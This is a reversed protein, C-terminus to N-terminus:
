ESVTADADPNYSKYEILAPQNQYKGLALNESLAKEIVPQSKIEFKGTPDVIELLIQRLKVANSLGLATVDTDQRLIRLKDPTKFCTWL